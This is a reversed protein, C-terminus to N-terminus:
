FKTMVEVKQHKLKRENNAFFLAFMQLEANSPNSIINTDSFSTADQYSVRSLAECFTVHIEKKRM